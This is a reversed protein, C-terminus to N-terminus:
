SSRLCKKNFFLIQRFHTLELSCTELSQLLSLNSHLIQLCICAVISCSGVSMLFLVGTLSVGATRLNAPLSPWRSGTSLYDQDFDEVM